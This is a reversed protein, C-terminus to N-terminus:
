LPRAADTMAGIKVAFSTKRAIDDDTVLHVDLLGSSRYGTRQFNMEDLARSWGDLWLRLADVQQPSARHHILLDIDSAPGATANKTSGILYVKVVGFRDLDLERAIRQAMALRWRWHPESSAEAGGRPEEEWAPSTTPTTLYAVASDLAANMLVRAVLGRSSAPVDIVHLVGALHAYEPLIGALLNDAALLWHENFVVGEDDPYLPLYRIRAEVLDQFFHTGFSLDPAYGDRRRAVEVLL